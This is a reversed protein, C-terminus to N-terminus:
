NILNTLLKTDFKESTFAVWTMDPNVIVDYIISLLICGLKSSWYKKYKDISIDRKRDM